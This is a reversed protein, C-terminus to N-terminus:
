FLQKLKLQVVASASSLDYGSDGLPVLGFLQYALFDDKHRIQSGCLKASLYAFSHHKGAVAPIVYPQKRHIVLHRVSTRYSLIYFATTYSKKTM